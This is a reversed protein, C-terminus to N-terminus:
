SSSVTTVHATLKAGNGLLAAQIVQAGKSKSVKTQLHARLHDVDDWAADCLPCAPGDVFALGQETFTLMQLAALLAPDAELKAIDATIATLETNGLTAFGKAANEFASLDRLASPKNFPSTEASATLGADLKTDAIIETLEPLGLIKRQHNVAGLV